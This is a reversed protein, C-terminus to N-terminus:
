AKALEGDKKDDLIIVKFRDQPYDQDCTARATDMILDVDEGCCTIFVDINPVDDGILRLRPRHRKKLIFMSWFMQLFNPIAVSIEVAIFVWAMPFTANQERQASMVFLIRLTFYLYYTGLTLVALLPALYFLYRKWNAMHEHDDRNNLKAISGEKVWNKDFYTSSANPILHSLVERSRMPSGSFYPNPSASRSDLFPATPAPTIEPSEPFLDSLTRNFGRSLPPRAGNSHLVHDSQQRSQPSSRGDDTTAYDSLRTSPRQNNSVYSQRIHAGPELESVGLRMSKPDKEDDSAVPRITTTTHDKSDSDSESSREHGAFSQSSKSSVNRTTNLTRTSPAEGSSDYQGDEEEEVRKITSMEM